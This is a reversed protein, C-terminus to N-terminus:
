KELLRKAKLGEGKLEFLKYGHTLTTEGMAKLLVRKVERYDDGERVSDVRACLREPLRPFLRELWTDKPIRCDEITRDFKGLYGLLEVGEVFNGLARLKESQLEKREQYKRRAEEGESTRISTEERLQSFMAMMEEKRAQEMRVGEGKREEEM